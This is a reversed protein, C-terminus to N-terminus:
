LNLYGKNKQITNKNNVLLNVDDAYVAASTDWKIVTGDQKRSRRLPM